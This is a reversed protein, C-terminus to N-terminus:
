DFHCFYFSVILGYRNIVNTWTVSIIDCDDFHCFYLKRIDYFSSKCPSLLTINIFIDSIEVYFCFLLLIKLTVTTIILSLSIFIQTLTVINFHLYYLRLNKTQFMGRTIGNAIGVVGDWFILSVLYKNNKVNDWTTCIDFNLLSCLFYIDRICLNNIWFSLCLM